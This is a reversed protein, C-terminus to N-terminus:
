TSAGKPSTSLTVVDGTSGSMGWRLSVSATPEGTSLGDLELRSLERDHWMQLELVDGYGVFGGKDNAAARTCTWRQVDVMKGASM